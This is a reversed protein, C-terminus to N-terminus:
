NIPFTKIIKPEHDTLLVRYLWSYAEDYTAFVPTNDNKDFACADHWSCLWYPWYKCQIIYQIKGKYSQKVIRYKEKLLSM